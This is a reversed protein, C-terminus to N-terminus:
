EDCYNWDSKKLHRGCPLEVCVSFYWRPGTCYGLWSAEAYGDEDVIRQKGVGSCSRNEYFTVTEGPIANDLEAYVNGDFDGYADLVEMRSCTKRSCTAAAELTKGCELLATVRHDGPQFDRWYASARGGRNVIAEIPQEGDVRFEVQRGPVGKTMLVGIDRVGNCEVNRLREARSCTDSGCEVTQSWEPCDEFEFNHPGQYKTAWSVRAEGDAGVEVRQRREDDLLFSLVVKRDFDGAVSARVRFTGDKRPHPSCAVQFDTIGACNVPVTCLQYLYATFTSNSVLLRGEDLALYSAFTGTDELRPELVPGEVWGNPTQQYTFVRGNDFRGGYAGAAAVGDGIALSNGLGESVPISTELIWRGQDESYKFFHIPEEFAPHSGILASRGSLAIRNGFDSGKSLTQTHVWQGDRLEYVYVASPYVGIMMTQGSLAMGRGEFDSNEPEIVQVRSWVGDRREYYSVYDHPYDRALVALRDGEMQVRYGFSGGLTDRIEQELTWTGPETRRYVLVMGGGTGIAFEDADLDFGFKYEPSLVPVHAELRWDLGERTFIFVGPDAYLSTLAITDGHMAILSPFYPDPGEAEILAEERPALNECSDKGLLSHCSMLASSVALFRVFRKM